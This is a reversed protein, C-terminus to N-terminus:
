VYAAAEKGLLMSLDLKRVVESVPIMNGDTLFSLLDDPESIERLDIRFRGVTWKWNSSSFSDRLADAGVRGTGARKGKRLLKFCERGFRLKLRVRFPLDVANTGDGELSGREGNKSIGFGGRRANLDMFFKTDANELDRGVSDGSRFL